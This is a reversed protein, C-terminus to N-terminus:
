NRYKITHLQIWKGGLNQASKPELISSRPSVASNITTMQRKAARYLLCKVKVLSLCQASTQSAFIFCCCCCCCCVGYKNFSAIKMVAINVIVLIHFRDLYRNIPSHIFFNHYM